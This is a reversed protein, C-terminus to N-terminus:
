KIMGLKRVIEGAVKKYVALEKEFEARSLYAAYAGIKQMDRKYGEQEAAKGIAESLKDLMEDTTAKPAFLGGFPYPLRLKYGGELVTPVNPAEEIRKDAYVALVKVTGAKIHSVVSPLNTFGIPVHGGLVATVVQSDGQFPVDTMKLGALDALDVGVLHTTAGKGTHGYKIGPNKEVWQVFEKLTNPPADKNVIISTLMMFQRAVPRVDASTYAAEPRFYEPFALVPAFIGMSYGPEGRTVAFGGVAGGGGPKNVVIVSQGLFSAMYNALVRSTLDSIGGPPYPVILEVSKEPYKAEAFGGPGAVGLACLFMAALIRSMKKMSRGGNKHPNEKGRKESEDKV